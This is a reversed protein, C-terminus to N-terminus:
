KTRIYNRIKIMWGLTLTIVLLVFDWDKNHLVTYQHYITAISLLIALVHQANSPLLAYREGNSTIHVFLILLGIGCIVSPISTYYAVTLTNLYWLWGVWSYMLVVGLIALLVPVKISVTDKNRPNWSVKAFFM